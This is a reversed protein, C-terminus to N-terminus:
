NPKEGAAPTSGAPLEATAPKIHKALWACISEILVEDQKDTEFILHEADGIVVLTRDQNPIAEFMDFTGQPKVLWPKGM